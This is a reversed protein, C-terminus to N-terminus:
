SKLHKGDVVFIFSYVRLAMFYVKQEDENSPKLETLIKIVTQLVNSNILCTMMHSYNMKEFTL